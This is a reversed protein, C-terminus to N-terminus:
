KIVSCNDCQQYNEVHPVFAYYGELYLTDADILNHNEPSDGSSVADRHHANYEITNSFRKGCGCKINHYVLRGEHWVREYATMTETVWNHRCEADSKGCNACQQYDETYSVTEWYGKSYITENFPICSHQNTDDPDNPNGFFLISATHTNYDTDKDFKLGCSCEIGTISPKGYHWSKTKVTKTKTVWKHRCTVGSNKKRADKVVVRCKLTRGSVKVSIVAAGKKRAVVKGSRSVTAIKKNSTKWRAKKKTGKVKLQVVPKTKKNTMTLTVKSRNLKVKAAAGATVPMVLTFVMTMITIITISKTIIKKMIIEREYKSIKENEILNEKIGIISLINLITLLNPM